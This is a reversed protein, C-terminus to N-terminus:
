KGGRLNRRRTDDRTPQADLGNKARFIRKQDARVLRQFEQEMEELIQLELLEEPTSPCLPDQEDGFYFQSM